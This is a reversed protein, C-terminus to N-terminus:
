YMNVEVIRFEATKMAEQKETEIYSFASQELSQGTGLNNAYVTSDTIRNGSADVAEIQVMFSAQDAGKNTLTVTMNSTTLGYQDTTMTFEGMDVTLNNQLIQDTNEGSLNGAAASYEAAASSFASSAKSLDSSWKAQLALTLAIALVGFVTGAIGMGKRSKRLMAIIGLVAALIGLFFSLNNIIPIISTVLAIIGLVLATVAMWGGRTEAPVKKATGTGFEEQEQGQLQQLRHGIATFAAHFQETEEAEFYVKVETRNKLSIRIYGPNSASEARTFRINQIDSLPISRAPESTEVLLVDNTVSLDSYSGSLKQYDM